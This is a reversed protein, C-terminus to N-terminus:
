PKRRRKPENEHLYENMGVSFAIPDGKYLLLGYGPHYIEDLYNMYQKEEETFNSM